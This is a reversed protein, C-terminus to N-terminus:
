LRKVLGTIRGEPAFFPACIRLPKRPIKPYLDAPHQDSLDSSSGSLEPHIEAEASRVREEAMRVYDSNLEIAVYNRGLRKAVVCTTGSGCFPDLVIGPEFGAYCKCTPRYGTIKREVIKNKFRLASTESTRVCDATKDQSERGMDIVTDEIVAVEPKGCKRCAREPCSALIIPEILKEAYVAFHAGHFPQTPITWVDRRNRGLPNIAPSGDGRFYGSHGERQLSHPNQGPAGHRTKADKGSSALKNSLSWPNFQLPERIADANAYYKESKTFMFVYEHSKTPRWSGRKLVLGENPLCKECGPCHKWEGDVKVRHHEWRWGNVSEPMCNGVFLNLDRVIAQAIKEDVHKLAAEYVQATTEKQGSVGKAWICNSRLYYGDARLAFAVRWPIGVLDKPKLGTKQLDSVNPRSLPHVGAEKRTKGLSNEGGGPNFCTGKGSAYADGLNLWLTGDPRLVRRVERFIRVIHHTYSGSVRVRESVPLGAIQEDTLTDYPSFPYPELGLSGRWAGCISCFQGQETRKQWTEPNDKRNKKHQWRKRQGSSYGEGATIKDGWRHKCNTPDGDWVIPPLGYDRLGWYIAPLYYCM